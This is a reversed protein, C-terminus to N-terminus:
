FGAVQAAIQQLYAAHAPPIGDPASRGAPSQDFITAFMVSATLYSGMLEPHSNDPWWLDGSDFPAAGDDVVAKWASGALALEGGTEAQYIGYGTIVVETHGAFTCVPPYDPCNIRDGLERGQTVYYVIQTATHNLRINHVLRLVEPLSTATVQWPTFSLGLSHNQLIVYDWPRSRIAALTSADGAHDAFHYDGKTASTAAVNIGADCALDKFLAPLNNTYTYSNGIFLIKLAPSNACAPGAVDLTVVNATASENDDSAGGCAALLGIGSLLITALAPRILKLWM